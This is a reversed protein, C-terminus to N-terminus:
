EHRIVVSESESVWTELGGAGGVMRDAPLVSLLVGDFGSHTAAECASSLMEPLVLPSTLELILRAEPNAARCARAIETLENRLGTLDKALVMPLYPTVYVQHAGDKVASSAEIAKITAKSTGAPFGATSALRGPVKGIEKVLLPVLRPPVCIGSLGNESLSKCVEIARPLVTDASLLRM